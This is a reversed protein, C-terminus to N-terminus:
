SRRCSPISLTHGSSTTDSRMMSNVRKSLGSITIEKSSLPTEPWGLWMAVNRPSCNAYMVVNFLSLGFSKANVRRLLPMQRLNAPMSSIRMDQKFRVKCRSTYTTHLTSPTIFANRPINICRDCFTQYLLINM